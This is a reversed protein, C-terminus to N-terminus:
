GIKKIPTYEAAAVLRGPSMGDDEPYILCINPKAKIKRGRPIIRANKNKRAM